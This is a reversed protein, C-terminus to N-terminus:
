QFSALNSKQSAMSAAMSNQRAFQIKACVNMSELLKPDLADNRDRSHPRQLFLVLRQIENNRVLKEIARAM